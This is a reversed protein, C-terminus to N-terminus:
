SVGAIGDGDVVHEGSGASHDTADCKRRLGLQEAKSVSLQVRHAQVVVVQLVDFLPRKRISGPQPSFPVLTRLAAILELSTCWVLRM